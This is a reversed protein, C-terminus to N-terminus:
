LTVGIFEIEVDGTEGSKQTFQIPDTIISGVWTLNQDQIRILSSAFEACFEELSRFESYTLGTFTLHRTRAKDEIFTHFGGLMDQKIVLDVAAEDSVTDGFDANPVSVIRTFAPYPAQLLIM